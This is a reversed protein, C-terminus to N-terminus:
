RNGASCAPDEQPCTWCTMALYSGPPTVNGTQRLVSIRQGKFAWSCARDDYWLYWCPRSGDSVTEPRPGEPDLLNGQISRCQPMSNEVAGSPPCGDQGPTECFMHEVARCDPETAPTSADSDVLPYAVCGLPLPDWSEFPPIANAFEDNCINFATGNFADIFQKLRLGGYAKYTNGRASITSPGTCIPLYDWLTDQPSPATPDRGIQYQADRASYTIPWGILGSVVIGPDAEPKVSTVSDIVDPIRILPLYSPDPQGPNPQDKAACDVLNATFGQGTYGRAPDYDPISQGNCLHGRAACRLRATEGANDQLFLGGNKTDDPDASCDDQNSVLVIFLYAQSRLFGTNAENMGAQPHLAARLAQLPQPYPNGGFGVAQALCAFVDALEGTYNRRRGSGDLKAIDEIWRAGPELGCGTGGAITAIAGPSFDNGWLLGQDGMLRGNGGGSRAGAGMDSSVVGIHVDPLGGPLSGLKEMMRPFNAALTSQTSAMTPSNDVVFLLDTPGLRAESLIPFVTEQGVHRPLGEQPPSHCAWLALPFVTALGWPLCQKRIVSLFRAPNVVM